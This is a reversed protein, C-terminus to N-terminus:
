CLASEPLHHSHYRQTLQPNQMCRLFNGESSYEGVHSMTSIFITVGVAHKMGLTLALQHFMETIFNRDNHVCSFHSFGNKQTLRLLTSLRNNISKLFVFLM